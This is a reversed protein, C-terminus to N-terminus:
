LSGPVAKSRSFGQLSAILFPLCFIFYSINFKSDYFGRHWGVSAASWVTSVAVILFLVIGCFRLYNGFSKLFLGGAFSLAVFAITVPIPSFSSQLFIPNNQLFSERGWYLLPAFTLCFGAAMLASIKVFTLTDKRRLLSYSLYCVVPIATIARTSLLFGGVIGPVLIRKREGSLVQKELWYVYLVVLVMNVFITSRVVIEYVIAPSTVLLVTQLLLARNEASQKNLFLFYAIFVALTLLGIEKVLYFPFTLVFYFPFPGPQNDQNSKALYPYKGQFLDDFFAQIVSWRDNMITDVKIFWLAALFFLVFAGAILFAQQRRFLKEPLRVSCLFLAICFCAYAGSLVLAYCGGIRSTYKVVFLMNVTCFVLMSFANNIM